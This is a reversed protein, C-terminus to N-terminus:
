RNVVTSKFYLRGELVKQQTLGHGQVVIDLLRGHSQEGVLQHSQDEKQDVVWSPHILDSNSLSSSIPFIAVLALTTCGVPTQSFKTVVYIVFKPNLYINFQGYDSTAFRM